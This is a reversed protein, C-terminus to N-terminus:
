KKKLKQNMLQEYNNKNNLADLLMKMKINENRSKHLKGQRVVRDMDTEKNDITVFEVLEEVVIKNMNSTLTNDNVTLALLDKRKQLEDFIKEKKKLCM